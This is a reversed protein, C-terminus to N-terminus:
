PREEPAERLAVMEPDREYPRLELVLEVAPLPLDYAAAITEASDGADASGIIADWLRHRKDRFGCFACPGCPAFHVDLEHLNM